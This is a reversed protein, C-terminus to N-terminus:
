MPPQPKTPQISQQRFVFNDRQKNFDTNKITNLKDAKQKSRFLVYSTKENERVYNSLTNIGLDSVKTDKNVYDLYHNLHTVITRYRDEVIGVDAIGIDQKRYELYLSVGEKISIAFFSKGLKM